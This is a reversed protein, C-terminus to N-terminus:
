SWIVVNADNGGSVLFEGSADFRVCQVSDEHGILSTTLDSAIAFMKITGDNSAIALCSTAGDFAVQNAMHPGCDLQIMPSVHRVDWMKVHGFADCSAITDGGINYTAHSVSHAHGYFTHACLGARADWISVTKDASASLLINSYPLFQVSNASDTHGRLTIRCRKSNLDWVKISHDLSATAIFNQGSHWSCSWVAGQHGNFSLLEEQNDINWIKCTSDGSATALLEGDPSFEVSAVWDKHGEGTAINEGSPMAWLKWLHDDSSSAIVNKTPHIAVASVALDHARITSTLRFGGGKEVHGCPGKVLNLQPNERTDAEWPSDDPHQSLGAPPGANLRNANKEAEQKAAHLRKQTPGRGSADTLGSDENKCPHVSSPKMSALKDTKNASQMSRLTNQMGAMQGLVKEREIQSMMKEKMAAEYKKKMAEMQPTTEAVQKQARQLDAILKSKEQLVRKHHMRHFDREKRLRVYTEKAQATAVQCRELERILHRVREKLDSNQAYCDPVPKLDEPNLLGKQQLEYWEAQFVNLTKLMKTRVLFNRVFDDVVEPRQTVSGPAHVPQKKGELLADEAAEKLTRVVRELDEDLDEQLLEEDVSITKIDFDEDVDAELEVRELYFADADLDVAM